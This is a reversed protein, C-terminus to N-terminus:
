RVEVPQAPHVKLSRGCAALRMRLLAGLTMASLGDIASWPRGRYQAVVDTFSTIQRQYRALQGRFREVGGNRWFNHHLCITWVGFPVARFRWMQQPVWLIGDGDEYPLVGLGDSIVKLGVESLVQLTTEDFSHGPAVWVKPALGECGFIKLAIRIKHEQEAFRLGAFESARNIGVLGPCGTVYSHQYGHVGITWGLAHWLRVREWFDRRTPCIHFSPDRNDPIVALIPKVDADLLAHEIQEWVPWNMTPCIDDFRLILKGAM